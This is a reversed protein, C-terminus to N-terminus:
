SIARLFDRIAQANRELAKSMSADGQEEAKEADSELAWLADELRQKGALADASDEWDHSALTRELERAGEHLTLRDVGNSKCRSPSLEEYIKKSEERLNGLASTFKAPPASPALAGSPDWRLSGDAGRALSVEREENNRSDVYFAKYGGEFLERSLDAGTGETLVEGNPRRVTLFIESPVTRLRSGKRTSALSGEEMSTSYAAQAEEKTAYHEVPLGDRRVPCREPSQASCKRPVGDDGVHYGPERTEISM